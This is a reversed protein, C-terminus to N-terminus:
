NLMILSNISLKSANPDPRATYCGVGGNFVLGAIENGTVTPFLKGEYPTTSDRM